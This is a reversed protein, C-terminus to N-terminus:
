PSNAVCRVSFGYIGRECQEFVNYDHIVRCYVKDYDFHGEVWGGHLYDRRDKETATWWCGVKGVDNFNDDIYARYGSPLASFGYNDTGNSNENWGSKSKLLKGAIEKGGVTTILTRWDATDPLKWGAPCVTLATEWDYLRGYKDCYSTDNNYCWSINFDTADGYSWYRDTKYNMNEAMWTQTGITVTKYTQGDRTDTFTGTQQATAPGALGVVLAVAAVARIIKDM